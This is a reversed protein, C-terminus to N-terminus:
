LAHRFAALRGGHWVRGDDDREMGPKLGYHGHAHLSWDAITVGTGLEAICWSILWQQRARHRFLGCVEPWRLTYLKHLEVWTKRTMALFGVNYVPRELSGFLAGIDALDKTAGLRAAETRLTDDEGANWSTIVQGHKVGRLLAGEEDALPRQMVFDADTYLLVDALKGPVVKLFSGHQICNTELPAGYNDITPLHRVTVGDLEPQEHGIAVYCIPFTAHLQLSRLYFEARPYRGDTGFILTFNKAM